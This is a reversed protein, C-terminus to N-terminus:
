HIPTRKLGIENIDVDASTISGGPRIERVHMGIGQVDKVDIRFIVKATSGNWPNRTFPPKSGAAQSCGFQGTDTVQFWKRWQNSAVFKYQNGSQVLRNNGFDGWCEIHVGGSVNWTMMKMGVWRNLINTPTQFNTSIKSFCYDPHPCEKGFNTGSNPNPIGFRTFYCCGQRTTPNDGSGTHDGGRMKISIEENGSAPKFYGTAEMNLFGNTNIEWERRPIGNHYELGGGSVRDNVKGTGGYIAKIGQYGTGPPAPTPGIEGEQDRTYVLYAAGAIIAIGAVELIDDSM